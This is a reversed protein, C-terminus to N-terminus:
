KRLGAAAVVATWRKLENEMHRGFEAPTSGHRAVTQAQLAKAVEDSALAENAARALKDIVAAPTGAPAALGFWLVSQFEPVGAEIMTPLEPMFPSRRPDTVALAVLKGARVHEVATSAPSFFGDIRGALLDTMVQPSGAYPVHTIKVGALSKLLELALHTSSAVGSSGFTITDPKAKALAILEKVSKAGLDPRVVLVTPTSTLLAIPAFDRIIDFNLNPSMAANVMNAVSAIFLTHGDNPARAVAAAAISSAAGTRNEVVVQQGLIQGMRAGVVRASIDATSGASFGSVVHVPATPFNQAQAPAALGVAWALAAATVRTRANRGPKGGALCTGGRAALVSTGTPHPFRPARL